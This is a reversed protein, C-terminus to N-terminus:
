IFLGEDQSERRREAIRSRGRFFDIGAQVGRILATANRVPEIVSKRLEAGADEITELAGTLLRDAHLIQLRLRDSAEDLLRDFKQGNTKVLRVIEATDSVIDTLQGQSDELLRHLRSLVPTLRTEISQAVQSLTQSLHRFQFYLACLLASQLALAVAAIVVFIGVWNQM